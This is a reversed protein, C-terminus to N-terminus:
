IRSIAIFGVIIATLSLTNSPLNAASKCDHSRNKYPYNTCNKSWSEIKREVYQTVNRFDEDTCFEKVSDTYCSSYTWYSCCLILEDAKDIDNPYKSHAAKTSIDSAKELCLKTDVKGNCLGSQPFIPVEKTSINVLLQFMVSLAFLM